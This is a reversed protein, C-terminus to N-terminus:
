NGHTGVGLAAEIMQFDKQIEEHDPELEIGKKIYEYAEEFRGLKYLLEAKTSLIIGDQPQLAIAKEVLALGEELHEGSQYFGYAKGNYATALGEKLPDDQTGGQCLPELKAIARDYDQMYNFLNGMAYALNLNEPELASAKNFWNLAEQYHAADKTAAGLLMYTNAISIYTPLYKPNLKLAIKLERMAPPVNAAYDKGSSNRIVTGLMRRAKYSRPQIRVIEKFLAVTEQGDVKNGLAKIYAEYYVDQGKGRLKDLRKLELAAAHYDKKFLFFYDFSNWRNYFNNFNIADAKDLWEKGQEWQDNLMYARALNGYSVDKDEANEPLYAVVQKLAELENEYDDVDDYFFALREYNEYNYPEEAVKRWLGEITEQSDIKGDDAESFGPSTPANLSTRAALSLPFFFSLVLILSTVTILSYRMPGGM